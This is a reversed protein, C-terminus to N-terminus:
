SMGFTVYGECSESERKACRVASFSACDNERSGEGNEGFKPMKERVWRHVTEEKRAHHSKAEPVLWPYSRPRLLNSITEQREHQQNDDFCHCGYRHGNVHIGCEDVRLRRFQVTTCLCRAMCRCSTTISTTQQVSLSFSLLAQSFAKHFHCNRSARCCRRCINVWM